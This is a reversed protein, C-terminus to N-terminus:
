FKVRSGVTTIFIDDLNLSGDADLTFWRLGAYLDVGYDAIRQVVYGGVSHGDARVSPSSIAVDKGYTYDISFATYGIDFFNRMLGLKGYFNYADKNDRLDSGAAGTFNLGTSQHLISFSGGYRLDIGFVNPDQLAVAAM